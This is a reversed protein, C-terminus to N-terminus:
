TEIALHLQIIKEGLLYMSTFFTNYSLGMMFRLLTFSYFDHCYPLGLGSVMVIVNTAFFTPYRGVYDSLYGFGLCGVLSGFFFASQTFPGRWGDDCVWDM